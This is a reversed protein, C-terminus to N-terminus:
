PVIIRKIGSTTFPATITTPAINWIITNNKTPYITCILENDSKRYIQYTDNDGKKIEHTTTSFELYSQGILIGKTDNIITPCTILWLGTTGIQALSGALLGANFYFISEYYSRIFLNNNQKARLEINTETGSTTPVDDILDSDFKIIYNGTQIYKNM